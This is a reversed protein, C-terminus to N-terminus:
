IEMRTILMQLCRHQPSHCQFILKFDMKIYTIFVISSFANQPICLSDELCFLLTLWKFCVLGVKWVMMQRMLSINNMFILRALLYAKSCQFCLPTKAFISCTCTSSDSKKKTLLHLDKYCDCYDRNHATFVYTSDYLNIIIRVTCYSLNKSSFSCRDTTKFPAEDNM